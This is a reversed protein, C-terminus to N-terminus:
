SELSQKVEAVSDLIDGGKRGAPCYQYGTKIQKITGIPKGELYVKINEKYTIM